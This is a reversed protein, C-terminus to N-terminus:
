SLDAGPAGLGMKGALFGVLDDLTDVGAAERTEITTGFIDDWKFVAEALSLSDIGLEERLRASGPVAELSRRAGSPLYFALVARVTRELGGLSPGDWFERITAVTSEPFGRVSDAPFVPRVSDATAHM